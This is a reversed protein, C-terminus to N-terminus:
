LVNRSLNVKSRVKKEAEDSMKVDGAAPEVVMAEANEEVEERGRKKKESKDKGM